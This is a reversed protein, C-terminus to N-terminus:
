EQLDSPQPAVLTGRRRARITRAEPILFLSGLVISLSCYIALL